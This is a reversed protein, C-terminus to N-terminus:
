SQILTSFLNTTTTTTTSLGCPELMTTAMDGSCCNSKPVLLGDLAAQYRTVGPKIAYFFRNASARVLYVLNNEDAGCALIQSSVLM